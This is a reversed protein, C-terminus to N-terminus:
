DTERSLLMLILCAIAAVAVPTGLFFGSIVACIAGLLPWGGGTRKIFQIGGVLALAGALALSISISGGLVLLGGPIDESLSGVFTVIATAVLGYLLAVAGIAVVIAGVVTSPSSISAGGLLRPPGVDDQAFRM